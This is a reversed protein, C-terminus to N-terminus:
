GAVRAPRGTGRRVTDGGARGAPRAPLNRAGGYAQGGALRVKVQQAGLSVRQQAIFLRRLPVAIEHSGHGAVRREDGAFLSGGPRRRVAFILGLGAISLLYSAPEPAGTNLNLVNGPLDAYAVTTGGPLTTGAFFVTHSADVQANNNSQAKVELRFTNPTSSNVRTPGILPVAAIGSYHGNCQPYTSVPNPCSNGGYSDSTSQFYVSYTVDFTRRLYFAANMNDGPTAGGSSGPAASLSVDYGVLIYMDAITTEAPLSSDYLFFQIELQTTASSNIPDYPGVEVTATSLRITSYDSDATASCIDPLSAGVSQGATATQNFDNVANSFYCNANALFSSAHAAVGLLGSLAFRLLFRSSFM